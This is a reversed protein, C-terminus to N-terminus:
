IVVLSEKKEKEEEKITPKMMYFLFLIVYPSIVLVWSINTFGNTCILNLIWTWLLVFVLQGMLIVVPEKTFLLILISIIALSFYILAPTCLKMM